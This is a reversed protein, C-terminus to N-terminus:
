IDSSCAWSMMSGVNLYRLYFLGRIDMGRIRQNNDSPYHSFTFQVGKIEDLNKNYIIKNSLLISPISDFNWWRIAQYSGLQQRSQSNELVDNDWSSTTKVSATHSKLVSVADITPARTHDGEGGESAMGSLKFESM